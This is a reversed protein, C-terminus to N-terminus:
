GSELIHPIEDGLELEDDRKVKVGREQEFRLELTGAELELVFFNRQVLVWRYCPHRCRSAAAVDIPSGIPSNTNRFLPILEKILGKVVVFVVVDRAQCM